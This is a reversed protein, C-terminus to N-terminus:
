EDPIEGLTEIVEAATMGEVVDIDFLAYGPGSLNVDDDHISVIDGIENVDPLYTGEAIKVIQAMKIYAETNITNIVSKM